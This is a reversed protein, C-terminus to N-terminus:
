VSCLEKLKLEEVIEEVNLVLALRGGGLQAVGQINDTGPLIDSISNLVVQRHGEIHDILLCIEGHKCGVLVAHLMPANQDEQIPLDLIKGLEVAEYTNGRIKAVMTGHVPSLANRPIDTIEQIHEFPVVFKDGSQVVMLGDIVLVAKRIPIELRVTSGFGLRSELFIEGNHEALNSRVVDMGVGRGSVESVQKATSFGPALILCLAEEDSMAAVEAETHMGKEVAKKRLVNPDIGRGDDKVRLIIHTANQEATLWMNGSEEKGTELREDPMELAHDIVNRVMHTLPADLDDVLSKDIELSEGELHVNVKKDLQSALKRAMRPFKSFLGSVVVRRLAVVSQQLESSQVQFSSNIQRLEEVLDRIEGSYNMRSHLDKLLEGTIFLSAVDNLFNDVSEEKVRLMRAAKGPTEIIKEKPRNETAENAETKGEQKQGPAGELKSFAPWLRDWVIELLSADIDFPSGLLTQLDNLAAKLAESLEEANAEKAWVAFAELDSASQKGIADSYNGEEASLFIAISKTVHETFDVEGLSLKKGVFEVPKPAVPEESNADGDEGILNDGSLEFDDVLAQLRNAWADAEPISDGLMSEITSQLGTILALEPSEQGGAELAAKEVENLLAQQADSLEQSNSGEAAEQLMGQLMDFGNVMVRQLDETLTLNLKRVEDMTNEIFHSFTKIAGLGMFSACGKISHVARFAANMPDADSPNNRFADLHDAIPNLSEVAEEVFEIVLELSNETQEPM